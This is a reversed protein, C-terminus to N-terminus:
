YNLYETPTLNTFEKFTRIFHSQDAYGHQFALDTLKQSNRTTNLQQFAANFQCVRRYLGPSIGVNKEFTRQLTRETINMEKQLQVLVEKQPSSVIKDTAYKVIGHDYRQNLSLKAIYSDMMNLMDATSAANLLKEQLEITIQPSLLNLDIIKDTLEHGAVGFLSLLAFPKLFYAILTFDEKFTLFEPLITQGFLLLHNTSDGKIEGKKSIFLLTPTGNAFLPLAFPSSIQHDGIVLIREVYAAISEGPKPSNVKM